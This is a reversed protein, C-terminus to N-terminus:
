TRPSTISSSSARAVCARDSAAARPERQHELFSTFAAVAETIAVDLAFRDTTEALVLDHLRRLPRQASTARTSRTPRRSSGHLGHDLASRAQTSSSSCRVLPVPVSGPAERRLNCHVQGPQTLGLTGPTQVRERGDVRSLSRGSCTLSVGYHAKM